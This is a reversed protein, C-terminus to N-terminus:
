IGPGDMMMMMMQRAETKTRDTRKEMSRSRSRSTSRSRSSMESRIRKTVGIVTRSNAEDDGTSYSAAKKEDQGKGLGTEKWVGEEVKRRSVRRDKNAESGLTTVSM